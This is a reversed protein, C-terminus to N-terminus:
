CACRHLKQEIVEMLAAHEPKKDEPASWCAKVRVQLTSFVLPTIIPGKLISARATVKNLARLEVELASAQDANFVVFFSSLLFTFLLTRM